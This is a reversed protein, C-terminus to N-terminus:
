RKINILNISCVKGVEEFTSYRASRRTPHVSDVVFYVNVVSVSINRNGRSIYVFTIHMFFVLVFM